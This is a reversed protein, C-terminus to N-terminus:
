FTTVAAQMAALAAKYDTVGSTWFYFSVGSFYSKAQPLTMPTNSMISLLVKQLENTFDRGNKMASANGVYTVCRQAYDQQQNLLLADDSGAQPIQSTAGCNILGATAVGSPQYNNSM